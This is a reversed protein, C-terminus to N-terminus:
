GSASAPRCRASRASGSRASASRGCRTAPGTRHGGPAPPRAGRGPPARRRPGTVDPPLADHEPAYGVRARVSPGLTWPDLGLVEIHGGDPRHLGLMLGLLTTKGAGNAGLLGTVGPGIEFTAGSLATTAGWRKTVHEGRVVDTM